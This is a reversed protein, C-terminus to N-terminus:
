RLGDFVRMIGFASMYTHIEAFLYELLLLWRWEAHMAVCCLWIYYGLLVWSLCFRWALFVGICFIKDGMM